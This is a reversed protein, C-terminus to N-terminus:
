KCSLNCSSTLLNNSMSSCYSSMEETFLSSCGFTIVNIFGTIMRALPFGNFITRSVLYRLESMSSDLHLQAM